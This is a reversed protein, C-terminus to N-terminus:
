SVKSIVARLKGTRERPIEDVLEIEININEGLCGLRIQENIQKKSEISFDKGPIVQVVFRDRKEQITRYQVIGPIDEIINITRASITRGSPLTLFDDSRGGISKILPWGRGCSCKYDALTGVDGLKYRILPMTYNYLGTVIIDGEEGPGVQQGDKIFEIVACDTLMHIGSHEKCEFGLRNFETSGYTNRVDAGFASEITNRCSETLTEGHTFILRPNLKNEEDRNKNKNEELYYSLIKFVSPFSYIMDPNYRELAGIIKEPPDFTPIMTKKIITGRCDEIIGTLEAFKDKLMLGAEFFAFYVLASSYLKSEKDNWIKLPIGTSGTTNTAKCLAMNANNALIKNYNEQIDKKTTIPIKQLDDIKKIDDTNIGERDLLNRYYPVHDYAHSIIKKLKKLQINSLEEVSKRQHMKLEAMHKLYYINDMM